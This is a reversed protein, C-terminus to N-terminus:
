ENTCVRTNIEYSVVTTVGYQAISRNNAKERRPSYRSKGAPRPAAPPRGGGPRGGRHVAAGALVKGAQRGRHARRQRRSTWSRASTGSATTRSTRRRLGGGRGLARTPAGRGPRRARRAGPSRKRAAASSCWRSRPYGAILQCFGRARGARDFRPERSPSSADDEVCRALPTTHPTARTEETARADAPASARAGRPVRAPAQGADGEVTWKM